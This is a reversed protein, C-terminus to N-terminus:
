CIDIKKKNLCKTEEWYGSNEFLRFAILSLLMPLAYIVLMFSFYAQQAQDATLAREPNADPVLQQVRTNQYAGYFQLAIMYVAALVIAFKQLKSLRAFPKIIQWMIFGNLVLKLILLAWLGFHIFVPNAEFIFHKPSIMLTGMDAIAALGLLVALIVRTRIESTKM